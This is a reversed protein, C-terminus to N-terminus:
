TIDRDMELSRTDKWKNIVRKEREYHKFLLELSEAWSRERRGKSTEIEEPLM